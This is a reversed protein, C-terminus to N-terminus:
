LLHQAEKAVINYSPASPLQHTKEDTFGINGVTIPLYLRPTLFTDSISAFLPRLCLDTIAIIPTACRGTTAHLEVRYMIKLVKCFNDNSTYANLPIVFQEDFTIRQGADVGRCSKSMVLECDEKSYTMACYKFVRELNLTTGTVNVSSENVLTVRVPVVEGLAYGQKPLQLTMAFPKTNCLFTCFVKSEEVEVPNKLLPILNLDDYRMVTFAMESHLDKAWPIDLNADVKFRVFGYNGEFTYPVTSPILCSFPYNYVGIAIQQSDANKSGLLYTITDFFRDKEKFTTTRRSGVTWKAKGVGEM